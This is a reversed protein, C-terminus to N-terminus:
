SVKRYIKIISTKFHQWKITIIYDYIMTMYKKKTIYLDYLFFLAHCTKYLISSIQGTEGVHVEPRASLTSFLSLVTKHLKICM